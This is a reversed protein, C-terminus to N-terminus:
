VADDDGQGTQTEHCEATDTNFEWEASQKSSSELTTSSGQQQPGQSRCPFSQTARSSDHGNRTSLYPQQESLMSRMFSSNTWAHWPLAQPIVANKDLVVSLALHYGSPMLLRISVIIVRNRDTVTGSRAAYAVQVAVRLSSTVKFTDETWIM